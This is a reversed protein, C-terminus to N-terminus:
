IHTPILHYFKTINSPSYYFFLCVLFRVKLTNFSLPPFYAKHYIKSEKGNAWKGCSILSWVKQKDRFLRERPWKNKIRLSHNMCQDNRSRLQWQRQSLQGKWKLRLMVQLNRSSHYRLFLKSFRVLGSANKLTVIDWMMIMWLYAM